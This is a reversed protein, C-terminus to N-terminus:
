QHVESGAGSLLRAEATSTAVRADIYAVVDRYRYKIARTGLKVFPLDVRGTERWKELTTAKVDLLAAVDSPSLLRNEDALM